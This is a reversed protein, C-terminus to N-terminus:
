VWSRESLCGTRLRSAQKLETRRRTGHTNSPVSTDHGTGNHINNEPLVGCFVASMSRHTLTPWQWNIQNEPALAYAAEVTQSKSGDIIDTEILKEIEKM